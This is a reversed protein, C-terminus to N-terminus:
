TIPMHTCVCMYVSRRTRVIYVIVHTTLAHNCVLVDQVCICMQKLVHPHSGPYMNRAVVM